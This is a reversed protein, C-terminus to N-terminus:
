NSKMLTDHVHDRRLREQIITAHGSVIDKWDLYSTKQMANILTKIQDQKLNTREAITNGPCDTGKHDEIGAVDCINVRLIM